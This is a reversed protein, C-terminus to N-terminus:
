RRRRSTATAAFITTFFGHVHAEYRYISVAVAGIGRGEVFAPDNLFSQKAKKAKHSSKAPASKTTTSTDNAPPDGGGGGGGGAAFVPVQPAAVLAVFFATVTVVKIASKIM